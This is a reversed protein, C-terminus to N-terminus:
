REREYFINNLDFQNKSLRHILDAASRQAQLLLLVFSYCNFCNTLKTPNPHVTFLGLSITGQHNEWYRKDWYRKDRPSNDWFRAAWLYITGIVNQGLAMHGLFIQFDLSKDWVGFTGFM